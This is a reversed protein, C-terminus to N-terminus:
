MREFGIQIPESWDTWFRIKSSYKMRITNWFCFFFSFMNYRESLRSADVFTIVTEFNLFYWVYGSANKRLTQNAMIKQTWLACDDVNCFLQIIKAGTVRTSTKTDFNLNRFTPETSCM